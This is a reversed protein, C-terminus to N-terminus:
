PNTVCIIFTHKGREAHPTVGLAEVLAMAAEYSSGPGRATLFDGYVTVSSDEDLEGDWNASAAKM